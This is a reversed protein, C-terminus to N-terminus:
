KEKFKECTDTLNVKKIKMPKEIFCINDINFLSKCNACNKCIKKM